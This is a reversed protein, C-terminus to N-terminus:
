RGASGFGVLARYSRVTRALAAPGEGAARRVNIRLRREMKEGPALGARTVKYGLFTSPEKAPRLHLRKPNLSLKRREALWAAIAARAERLRSKDEAFLTFDNDCTRRCRSCM